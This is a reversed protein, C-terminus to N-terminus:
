QDKEFHTIYITTYKGEEETPKDFSWNFRDHCLATDLQDSNIVPALDYKDEEEEEEKKVKKTEIICGNKKHYPNLPAECKPCPEYINIAFTSSM